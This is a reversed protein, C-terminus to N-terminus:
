GRLRSMYASKGVRRGAMLAPVPVAPAIPAMSPRLPSRRESDADAAGAEEAEDAEGVEAPDQEGPMPQRALAAASFLDPGTADPAGEYAKRLAEWQEDSKSMVGSRIAAAWAYLHSDLMEQATGPKPAWRYSVSGDRARIQKRTESTLQQYYVDPLGDVFTVYGFELPDQKRLYAYLSAKLGSTGVLFWRKQARIITGDPRRENRVRALPPAGDPKAGKVVIVKAQPHRKAWTHVDNTWAGGDIALQDVGRRGGLSDRFGRAVLADLELWAAETAIHHHIIGCDIVARTLRPGWVVAQWECRDIQCDVGITLIYFGAPVVGRPLAAAEARESLAEWDPAETATQYPLGLGDNFFAREMEPKGRAAIWARAINAWSELPSYAAWLDFSIVSGDANPNDAVWAGHLNMEERHREEIREGCAVCTFHADDPNDEDLGALMNAWELPQLVGCHPCPVHYRERTGQKFAATIRCGPEVFPTGIKVIKGGSILFAKTRSDAQVLPDGAGNDLPWKSVDDHIAYPYSEMSLQGPSNAGALQLFGRGDRRGWYMASNGTRAAAPQLIRTLTRSSRALSEFKNRKWKKANGDSPFVAFIPLPALDLLGGIAIQALVTGGLQASKRLVIISAPHDPSMVQLIRTFFPFKARDYPGPLPSEGKKFRINDEAWQTLDLAPKPELVRSVVRRVVQDPDATFASLIERAKM